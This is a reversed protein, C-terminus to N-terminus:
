PLANLHAVPSRKPTGAEVFHRAVGYFLCGGDALMEDSAADWFVGGFLPFRRM